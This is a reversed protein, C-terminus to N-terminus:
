PNSYRGTDILIQIPQGGLTIDVMYELNRDNELGSIHYRPQYLRENHHVGVYLASTRLLPFLLLFLSSVMYFSTVVSIITFM